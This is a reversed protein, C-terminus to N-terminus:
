TETETSLCILTELSSKRLSTIGATKPSDKQIGVMSLYAWHYIEVRNAAIFVRSELTLPVSMSSYAVGVSKFADSSCRGCRMVNCVVLPFGSIRWDLGGDFFELDDAACDLVCWCRMHIDNLRLAPILGLM